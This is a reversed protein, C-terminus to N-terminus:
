EEREKDVEMQARIAQRIYYGIGMGTKVKMLNLYNREVETLPVSFQYNKVSDM